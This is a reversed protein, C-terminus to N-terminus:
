VLIQTTTRLTLEHQYAPKMSASVPLASASVARAVTTSLGGEDDPLPFDIVRAAAAVESAVQASAEGGDDENTTSASATDSVAKTIMAPLEEENPPLMHMDAKSTISAQKMVPTPIDKGSHEEGYRLEPETDSQSLADHTAIWM